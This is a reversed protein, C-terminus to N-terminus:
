FFTCLVDVRDEARMRQREIETQALYQAPLSRITERLKERMAKVRKTIPHETTTFVVMGQVKDASSDSSLTSTTGNTLITVDYQLKNNELVIEVHCGAKFAKNVDETFDQEKVDIRESVEEAMSAATERLSDTRNQLTQKTQKM